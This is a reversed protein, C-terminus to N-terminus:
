PSRLQGETLLSPKPACSLLTMVKLHKSGKFNESNEGRESEKGELSLSSLCSHFGQSMPGTPRPSWPIDSGPVHAGHSTPGMPRTETGPRGRPAEDVKRAPVRAQCHICAESKATTLVM